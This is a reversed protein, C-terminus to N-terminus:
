GSLAVSLFARQAGGIVRTQMGGRVYGDFRLQQLRGKM